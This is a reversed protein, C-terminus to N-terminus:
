KTKVARVIKNNTKIVYIGNPLNMRVKDWARYITKEDARFTIVRNGLVDYVTATQQTSTFNSKFRPMQTTSKAIAFEIWDLNFYPKDIKIKLVHAGEAIAPVSVAVTEFTKWDGTNPVM